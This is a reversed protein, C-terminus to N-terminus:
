GGKETDDSQKKKDKEQVIREIQNMEEDQTFDRERERGGKSEKEIM